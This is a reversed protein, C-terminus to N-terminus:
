RREATVAMVVPASGDTGKVFEIEAIVADRKPHVALYRIQQGRLAFAFESGPVDIPRIYDAFHEGNLLAHDETQGEAYHLRVIMTLSGKKGLPYGWGSVGSLLHISKASMNCPAKVSKPMTPPIKGGPGYLLVVNPVKEGQPDILTFPVGKFVKPGWDAFILREVGADHSHFMGLTSVATAAKTLPIPTYQGRQTLYELLDTLDQKSVQKEFGEPMLSKTTAQIEDIDDRQLSQKKAEGDLLEIATKSESSMLGTYIKGAKTTVVYQRYNGEVSRSPDLLEMLLHHKSHVAMGTLDPGIKAGEGSHTHCKACQAKFIAKGKVPDGEVKTIPLLEDIVRQRDASPLGGGKALLPKAREALSKTPHNALSQKQDLSLDALGITGKDLGDLLSSTWDSRSLLVRIATPRVGPTLSPLSQLLAPGVSPAESRGVAEFFGQALERSLQPSLLDLIEQPAKADAKKFDIYSAAAAAREADNKGSKVVSLISIAVEAVNADLVNSGMRSALQSLTGRGSPTMKAFLAKLHADIKAPEPPTVGNQWGAALGRITAERVSPTETETAESLIQELPNASGSLKPGERAYHEAVREILTFLLKDNIEPREELLGTLVQPAYKAALCTLADTVWRDEYAFVESCVFAAWNGAHRNTPGDVQSLIVALRLQPDRIRRLNTLRHFDLNCFDPDDPHLMYLAHIRVASSKHSLSQFVADYASENEKKKNLVKLGHLTRLAHIVGVNLGVEDVQADSALTVLSSLVDLKGREVLLRQAHKRWFMNDHKLTFVMKLPSADKLTMPATKKAGTYVIRYVRGHKKDRLETEYANGPGNKFGAPTPNHQVIYNYWDIVWVHGDPGVEAMIPATWEDDSAVLNWANKSKFSAGDPEIQFVAVIHGTPECVFATKNWYEKPYTRATYLAHGAAATFRGHHDVQRVKDTVLEMDPTGAIGGLVPASWGKVAEYYRNPIPMHISPNGNATSGFLHGDESFGLGWSNNNTSRLFELKSGDPKFRFFGQSFRHKEGGVVGDFGSYGVIGYIWNDFGYHLNSPGAHSDRLGWGTFLVKRVDAKDDGNTDKLFLTDPAQLVIVGGNSFTFGTPISLKDAFVTFKDAKGDGDTDECISLRDRGEGEPKRENPYDVSEAVWLRGREDWNMCIPRRIDPEAAFLKVEFGEPVIMHKLSEAPDLPKQMKPKAAAGKGAPPYFPINAEVYEFPKVDTRKPTIKPKDAHVAGALLLMCFLSRM